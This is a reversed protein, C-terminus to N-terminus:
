SEVWFTYRFVGTPNYDLRSNIHVNNYLRVPDEALATAGALFWCDSLSGQKIGAPAFEDLTGKLHVEEGSYIDKPRMWGKIANDYESARGGQPPASTSYISGMNAGFDNEEYVYDGIYAQKYTNWSNSSHGWRAWTDTCPNFAAETSEDWISPEVNLSKSSVAGLLLAIALSKM